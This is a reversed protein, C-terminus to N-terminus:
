CGPIIIHLLGGKGSHLLLGENTPYITSRQNNEYIENRITEYSSVEFLCFSRKCFTVNLMKLEDVIPSFPILFFVHVSTYKVFSNAKLENAKSRRTFSYVNSFEILFNYKSIVRKLLDKVPFNLGRECYLFVLFLQEQINGFM